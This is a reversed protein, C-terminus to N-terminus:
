EISIPRFNFKEKSHKAIMTDIMNRMMNPHALYYDYSKYFQEKTIKHQQFIKKQLRVNEAMADKSSDRKIFDNVFIDARLYDWFVDQMKAPAIIDHPM